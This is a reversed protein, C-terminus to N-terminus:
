GKNNIKVSVAGHKPTYFWNGKDKPAKQLKQYQRQGCSCVVYEAGLRELFHESMTNLSGHHPAIVVDASLNDFLEFLRQQAYAEIDSCILIRRNAYEILSVVSKENDSLSVNLAANTDPWLIKIVTDDVTELKEPLPEIEINENNLCYNLFRAAGYDETKKLFARNAYIDKVKCDTVIEPIGNIHDLDDHSIVIADIGDIGEHKLFPRVVRTGIDRNHQSGADFIFCHKPTQLVVAQGHGVDLCTLVLENNVFSNLGVAGAFIVVV